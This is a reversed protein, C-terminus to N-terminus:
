VRLGLDRLGLGWGRERVKADKVAAERADKVDLM